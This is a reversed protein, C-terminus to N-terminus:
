AASTPTGPPPQSEEDQEWARSQEFAVAELELPAADYGNENIEALYRAVFAPIGGFREYQAVHALEHAVLTPDHRRSERVFFGYGATLGDTMESVFGFAQAARRLMKEEPLPTKAVALLKVREPHLVGARTAIRLEPESLGVGQELILREQDEVWASVLPHLEALRADPIRTM